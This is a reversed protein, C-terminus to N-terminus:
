ESDEDGDGGGQEVFKSKCGCQCTAVIGGKGWFSTDCKATYKVKVGAKKKKGKKEKEPEPIAGWNFAFGSAILDDATKDFEGGPIVDDTCNAGTEKGEVRKGKVLAVPQLGVAKMAVAWKKCHYPNHKEKANETHTFVLLHVMEHVITQLAHKTGKERIRVADLQIEHHDAKKGQQHLWRKPAFLGEYKRLRTLTLVVHPLNDDFLAKNFHSFARQLEDAIELTPPMSNSPKVSTTSKSHVSSAATPTTKASKALVPKADASKKLGVSAPADKRKSKKSM